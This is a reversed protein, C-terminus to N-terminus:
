NDKQNNPKEKIKDIKSDVKKKKDQNKEIKEELAKSKDELRKEREAGGEEINKIRTNYEEQTIQGDKLKQDLEAKKAEVKELHKQHREEMKKVMEDYKEQSISGDQLKQTLTAKKEEYKNSTQENAFVTLTTASLMVGLIGLAVIKKSGRM